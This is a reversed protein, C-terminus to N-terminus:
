HYCSSFSSYIKNFNQILEIKLLKTENLEKTLIKLQDFIKALKLKLSSFSSYIKNFNQILEIKLLKTENLEKTLIKLQDFIKALKLKVLNNYPFSISSLFFFPNNSLDTPMSSFKSINDVTIFDSYNQDQIIIHLYEEIFQNLELTFIYQLIQINEDNHSLEKYYYLNTSDLIQELLFFVTSLIEYDTLFSIGLEDIIFEEEEEKEKIGAEYNENEFSPIDINENERNLNDVEGLHLFYRHLYNRCEKFLLTLTYLYLTCSSKSLYLILNQIKQLISNLQSNINHYYLQDNYLLQIGQLTYLIIELIDLTEIINIQTNNNNNLINGDNNYLIYQDFNSFLMGKPLLSEKIYDNKCQNDNNNSQLFSEKLSLNNFFHSFKSFLDNNDNNYISTNNNYNNNDNNNTTTTNTTYNNNINEKTNTKDNSHSNDIKRIKLNNNYIQSSFQINEINKYKEKDPLIDNAKNKTLEKENLSSFTKKKQNKIDTNSILHSVIKSFYLSFQYLSFKNNKILYLFESSFTDSINKNNNNNNNKNNVNIFFDTSFLESGLVRKKNTNISYTSKLEVWENIISNLKTFLLNLTNEKVNKDEKNLLLLEIKWKLLKIYEFNICEESTLYDIKNKYYNKQKETEESSQLSQYYNYNATCFELLYDHCEEFGCSKTAAEDFDIKLNRISLKSKSVECLSDNSQPDERACIFDREANKVAMSLENGDNLLIYKHTEISKLCTPAYKYPDKFFEKCNAKRYADCKEQVSNLNTAVFRYNFECAKYPHLEKLCNYHIIKDHYKKDYNNLNNLDYSLCEGSLESSCGNEIYCYGDSDNMIKVCDGKKSCCEDDSCKVSGYINNCKESTCQGFNPKCDNEYLCLKGQISYKIKGDVCVGYRSCCQNNCQYKGSPDDCRTIKKNFHNGNNILRNPTNEDLGNIVDKLSLDILKQKMLEYNFITDSNESMITAAIGAAIPSAFSTGSETYIIDDSPYKTVRITGPAFFAVCEGYSSYNAREYMVEIKDSPGVHRNNIAAIPIVGEYSTYHQHNCNYKYSNGMAVFIIFGLKVLETIKNQIDTSYCNDDYNCGRSLNIITKGPKGNQKIYDLANLEDFTELGTDLMHLNAKKAVGNIKGIAAISVYTGHASGDTNCDNISNAKQIRSNIFIGDCTINRESQYTDFNEESVSLNFGHDIIYVDIGKGASSPYYYNNDYVSDSSDNYRGQSILSLHTNRLEFDFEHEQVDIDKWNTKLLIKEKNDFNNYDITRFAITSSSKECSIVNPLARIEKVLDDSLFAVIAYYNLIPCIHIVLNSEIPIYEIEEKTITSNLSRKFNHFNQPRNSNIFFFKYKRDEENTDIEKTDIESRKKLQSIITLEELKKDLQGNNLKYTETNDAIIEYIDNMRDNVLEDISNQIQKSSKDYEKDNSYRRISVIYYHNDALVNLIFYNFIVVMSFYFPYNKM